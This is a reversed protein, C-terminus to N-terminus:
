AAAKSESTLSRPCRGASNLSVPPRFRLWCRLVRPDRAGRDARCRRDDHAGVPRRREDAPSGPQSRRRLTGPSGRYPDVHAEVDARSGAPASCRRRRPLGLRDRARRGGHELAWRRPRRGARARPAARLESARLRAPAGAVGAGGAVARARQAARHVLRARLAPLLMRLMAAADKDELVGLVLASRAARRVVEPLSEVLAQVAHPTTPATSCPRRTARRRAAPPGPRRDRRGRRAVAREDLQRGARRLHAEARPVRSRSTAGSSPVRRACRRVSPPALRQACSGRRASAPSGSPSPSAGGACAPASCSRQRRPARGRAEGRRHRHGDARALAHARPRRQHAGHRRRRDRQDRRLPRRARGRRRRGRREQEAMEWLAAATLLEFQTM